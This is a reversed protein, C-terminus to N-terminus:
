EEKWAAVVSSAAFSPEVSPQQCFVEVLSSGVVLSTLPLQCEWIQIQRKKWEFKMPMTNIERALAVTQCKGSEWHLCVQIKVHTTCTHPVLCTLVLLKHTGPQFITNLMCSVINSHLSDPGVMVGLLNVETLSWMLIKQDKSKPSAYWM